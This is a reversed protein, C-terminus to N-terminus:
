SEQETGYGSLIKNKDISFLHHGILEITEKTMGLLPAEVKIQSSGNIELLKNFQFVWEQYCDPFLHERDAYNAGYWVLNIDLSEALGVAFSLFTINRAPVHWQSVGAYRRTGYTLKSSVKMPIRLTIFDLNHEDCYAGAYDLEKIHKQGYDFLVCYPTKGIAQALGCLLTSDYGGSFLIIVKKDKKM